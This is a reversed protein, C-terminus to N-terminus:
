EADGCSMEQVPEIRLDGLHGAPRIEELITEGRERCIQLKRQPDGGLAMLLVYLRTGTASGGADEATSRSPPRSAPLGVQTPKKM